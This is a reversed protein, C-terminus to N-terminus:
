RPAKKIKLRDILRTNLDYVKLDLQNNAIDLVCFNNVTIFKQSFPQAMTAQHLPAGGGGTVIYYIDNRRLREYAHQHGNFVLDVKYEELLPVLLNLLNKEDYKHRSFPPHHFLAIVFNIDEGINNLDEKLWSRQLSGQKLDENSDLVIFHVGYRELSYWQENYPLQFNDFYSEIGAKYEHNGIVPYFQAGQRLPRTIQNVTAWERPSETVLDGTHFVIKPRKNCIARVIKRHTQHGLRSDGYVVVRQSSSNFFVSLLVLMAMFALVLLIKKNRM